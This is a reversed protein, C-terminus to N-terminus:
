PTEGILDAFPVWHGGAAARKSLAKVVHVQGACGGSGDCRQLTRADHEVALLRIREREAAQGQSYGFMRGEEFAGAAEGFYVRNGTTTMAHRRWLSMVHREWTDLPTGPRGDGLPTGCQCRALLQEDGFEIVLAHGGEWTAPFEEDKGTISM